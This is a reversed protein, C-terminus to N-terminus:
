FQGLLSVAVSPGGLDLHGISATSMALPRTNDPADNHLTLAIGQAAIYSAELRVGVNLRHRSGAFLDLATGASAMAGWGHDYVSAGSRDAIAVRARQAGLALRASATVLRHLRYRAALGGTVSLQDITTSLTQFMRGTVSGLGLGAEAWVTLDPLPWSGLHVGLDRGLERAVGLSLGTLNGGTLANASPSRLARATAGISVEDRHAAIEAPRDGPADADADADARAAPAVALVLVLAMRGTRRALSTRPRPLRLPSLLDRM